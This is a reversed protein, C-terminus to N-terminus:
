PAADARVAKAQQVPRLEQLAPDAPSAQLPLAVAVAQEREAEEQAEVVEVEM